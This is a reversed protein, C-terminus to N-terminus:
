SIAILNQPTAMQTDGGTRPAGRSRRPTMWIGSDFSIKKGARRAGPNFPDLPAIDEM